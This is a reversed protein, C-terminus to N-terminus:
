KFKQSKLCANKQLHAKLGHLILLLMLQPNATPDLINPVAEDQMVNNYTWLVSWESAHQEYQWPQISTILWLTTCRTIKKCNVKLSHDESSKFTHKWKKLRLLDFLFNTIIYHCRKFISQYVFVLLREMQMLQDFLYDWGLSMMPQSM